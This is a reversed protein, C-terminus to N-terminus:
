LFELSQARFSRAPVVGPDIQVLTQEHRVGTGAAHADVRVAREPALTGRSVHQVLGAPAAHIVVLAQAHLVDAAVAGAAVDIATELAGAVISERRAGILDALIHVLAQLQAVLAGEPAVVRRAGEAADARVAVGQRRVAAM